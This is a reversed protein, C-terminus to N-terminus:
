RYFLSKLRYIIAYNYHPHFSTILALYEACSWACLLGKAAPPHRSPLQIYFIFGLLIHVLIDSTTTEPFPIIKNELNKETKNLSCINSKYYSFLSLPYYVIHTM